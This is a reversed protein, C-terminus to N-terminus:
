SYLAQNAADSAIHGIKLILKLFKGQRLLMHHAAFV